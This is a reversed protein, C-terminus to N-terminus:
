NGINPNRMANYDIRSLGGKLKAANNHLEYEERVQTNGWLSIEIERTVEPFIVYPMDSIFHIRVMEDKWKVM